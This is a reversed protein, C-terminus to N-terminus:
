YSSNKLLAQWRCEYQWSAKILLKNNQKSFLNSNRRYQFSGFLIRLLKIRKLRVSHIFNLLCKIIWETCRDLLMKRWKWFNNTICNMCCNLLYLFKMQSCFSMWCTYCILFNQWLFWFSLFGPLLLDFNLSQFFSYIKKIINVQSRKM